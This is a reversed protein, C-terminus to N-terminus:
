QRLVLGLWVALGCGGGFTDLDPAFAAVAGAAAPGTGLITRLRRMAGGTKTAAEPGAALREVGRTPRVIRELSVAGDCLRRGIAEDERRCARECVADPACIGEACGARVGGPTWRSCASGSAAGTRTCRDGIRAGDSRARHVIGPGADGRTAAVVGLTPRM